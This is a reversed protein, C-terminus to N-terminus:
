KASASSVIWALAEVVGAVGLPIWIWSVGTKKKPAPCEPCEPCDPCDLTTPSAGAGFGRGGGGGRPPSAPPPPPSADGIRALPGAHRLAFMTGMVPKVQTKM